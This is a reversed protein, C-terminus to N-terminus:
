ATGRVFCCWPTAQWLSHSPHSFHRLPCIQKNPGTDLQICGANYARWNKTKLVRELKQPTFTLSAQCHYNQWGMQRGCPLAKRCGCSHHLFFPKPLMVPTYLIYLAILEFPLSPLASSPPHSSQFTSGKELRCSSDDDVELIRKSQKSRVQMCATQLFNGPRLAWRQSIIWKSLRRTMSAVKSRQLSISNRSM